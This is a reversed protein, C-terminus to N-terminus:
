DSTALQMIEEQLVKKTEDFTHIEMLKQRFESAGSYDNIYVKYFKKLLNFDKTQGWTEEFLTLHYMLMNMKEVLPIVQSGKEKNFIWLNSFIGRGIMVGDVGYTKIKEYADARSTVDGNGLIITEKHMENRLMVAKGIEEWDAPDKSMRTAIRGHVTLV